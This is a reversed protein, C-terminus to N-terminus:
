RTVTWDCVAVSAVNSSNINFGANVKGSVNFIEDAACTVAVRYDSISSPYAVPLTVAVSVASAFTATGAQFNAGNPQSFLGAPPSVGTGAFGFSSIDNGISTVVDPWAGVLNNKWVLFEGRTGGSGGLDRSTSSYIHAEQAAGASNGFVVIGAVAAASTLATTKVEFRAGYAYLANNDGGVCVACVRYLPANIDGLVETSFRGGFLYLNGLGNVTDTSVVAGSYSGATSNFTETYGAAMTLLATCNHCYLYAWEWNRYGDPALAQAGAGALGATDNIFRTNYAYVRIGTVTVAHLYHGIFESDYILFRRADSEDPALPSYQYFQWLADGWDCEVRVNSFVIDMGSSTWVGMPAYLAANFAPAGVPVGAHHITLDQIRVHTSGITQVVADGDFGPLSTVDLDATSTRLITTNDRGSGALTVYSPIHLQAASSSYIGPLLRVTWQVSASAQSGAYSLAAAITTYGGIAGNPDVIIEPYNPATASVIPKTSAVGGSFTIIGTAKDYTASSAGGFVGLDNFQLTTSGGGPSGSGGAVAEYFGTSTNCFFPAAVGTSHCMQRPATCAVVTCDAAQAMLTYGKSSLYDTTVPYDAYAPAALLGGTLVLVLTAAFRRARALRSEM